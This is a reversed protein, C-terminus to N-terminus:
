LSDEVNSAAGTIQDPAKGRAATPHVTDVLVAGHDFSGALEAGAGGADGVADAVDHGHRQV